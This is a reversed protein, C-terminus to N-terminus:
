YRYYDRGDFNVLSSVGTNAAVAYMDCVMWRNDYTVSVCQWPSPALSYLLCKQICEDCTIGSDRQFMIANAVGANPVFTM